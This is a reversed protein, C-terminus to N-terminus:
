RCCSWQSSGLALSKSLGHQLRAGVADSGSDSIGAEVLARVKNYGELFGTEVPEVVLTRTEEISQPSESPEALYTFLMGCGQTLVLFPLVLLYSRSM